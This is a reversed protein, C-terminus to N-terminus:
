ELFLQYISRYIRHDIADLQETDLTKLKDTNPKQTQLDEVAIEALIKTLGNAKAATLQNFDDNKESKAKQAYLVAFAQADTKGQRKLKAKETKIAQENLVNQLLSWTEEALYEKYFFWEDPSNEYEAKQKATVPFDNELAFYIATWRATNNFENVDFDVLDSESIKLLYNYQYLVSYVDIISKNEALLSTALNQMRQTDSWNASTSQAVSVQTASSGEEFSKAWKQLNLISNKNSAESLKIAKTLAQKDVRAVGYDTYDIYGKLNLNNYRLYKLNLDIAYETRIVRGKNDLVDDVVIPSQISATQQEDKRIVDIIQQYDEPHQKVIAALELATVLKNSKYAKFKELEPNALVLSDKDAANSTTTKVALEDQQLYPYKLVDTAKLLRLEAAAAKKTPTLEDETERESVVTRQVLTNRLTKLNLQSNDKAKTEAFATKIYDKNLYFFLLSQASLNAYDVKHRIKKVGGRQKDQASLAVTQFENEASLATNVLTYERMLQLLPKPNIRSEKLLKAYDFVFYQGDYQPDTFLPSLASLNAYFKSQGADLLLPFTAWAQSNTSEYGVKPTISFQGHKADVVGDVAFYYRNMLASVIKDVNERTKDLNKDLYSFQDVTIGEKMWQQQTATLGKQQTFLQNVIDIRKDPASEHQEAANESLRLAHETSGLKIKSSFAYSQKSVLGKYSSYVQQQLSTTSVSAPQTACGVAGLSMLAVALFKLKM